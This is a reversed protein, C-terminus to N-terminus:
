GQEDWAETLMEYNRKVLNRIDRRERVTFNYSYGKDLIEWLPGVGVGIEAYRVIDVKPHRANLEYFATSSHFYDVFTPSLSWKGSVPNHHM